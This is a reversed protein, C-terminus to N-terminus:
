PVVRRHHDMFVLGHYFHLLICGLYALFVLKILIQFGERDLFINLKGHWIDVCFSIVECLLIFMELGLDRCARNDLHGDRSFFDILSQRSLILLLKSELLVHKNLGDLLELNVFLVTKFGTLNLTWSQLDDALM